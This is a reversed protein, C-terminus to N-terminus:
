LRKQIKASNKYLKKCLKKQEWIKWRSNTHCYFFTICSLKFIVNELTDIQLSHSVRSYICLFFLLLLLLYWLAAVCLFITPYFHFFTHSLYFFDCKYYFNYTVTKKIRCHFHHKKVVLVCWWLLVQNSRDM